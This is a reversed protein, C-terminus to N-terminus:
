TKMDYKEFYGLLKLSRRCQWIIMLVISILFRKIVCFEWRENISRISIILDLKDVTKKAKNQKKKRKQTWDILFTEKSKTNWLDSTSAHPPYEFIPHASCFCCSNRRISESYHSLPRKRYEVARNSFTQWMWQCYLLWEPSIWAYIRVIWRWTGDDRREANTCRRLHTIQKWICPVKSPFCVSMRYYKRNICIHHCRMDIGLHMSNLHSNWMMQM